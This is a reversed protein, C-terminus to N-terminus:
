HVITNQLVTNDTTNKYGLSGTDHTARLTVEPTIAQQMGINIQAMLEFTKHHCRLVYAIPLIDTFLIPLSIYFVFYEDHHLVESFVILGRIGEFLALSFMYFAAQRDMKRKEPLLAPNEKTNM